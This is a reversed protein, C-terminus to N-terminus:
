STAGTIFGLTVVRGVFLEVANWYKGSISLKPDGLALFNKTEQGELRGHFSSACFALAPPNSGGIEQDTTLRPIGQAVRGKCPPCK